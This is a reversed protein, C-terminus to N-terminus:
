KPVSDSRDSIEMNVSTGNNTGKQDILTWNTGDFTDGDGMRFYSVLNNTKSHKRLDKPKGNNYIESIESSSLSSNFLGVEDINGIFFRDLEGGFKGIKVSAASNQLSASITGTFSMTKEAGNMYIKLRDANTAGDGDYVFVINYWNGAVMDANTTSGHNGGSDTLANAVFVQLEDSVGATQFGFTGETQYDWKVVIGKDVALSPQKIWASVTLKTTFDLSSSDPINISENVGDFLYSYLNSFQFQSRRHKLYVFGM